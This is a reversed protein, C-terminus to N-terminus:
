AAPTAKAKAKPAKKPLHADRCERCTTGRFGPKATTPFKTVPRTRTCKVCTMEDGTPIVSAAVKAEAKVVPAAKVNPTAKGPVAAAPKPAAKRTARKPAATAPVDAVVAPAATITETM